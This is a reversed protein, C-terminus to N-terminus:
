SKRDLPTRTSLLIATQEVFVAVNHTIVIGSLMYVTHAVLKPKSCTVVQMTVVKDRVRWIEASASADECGVLEDLLLTTMDCDNLISNSLNNLSRWIM